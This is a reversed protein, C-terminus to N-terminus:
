RAVGPTVRAGLPDFRLRAAMGRRTGRNFAAEVAHAAAASDCIALVSPGSGSLAAGSAGANYALAILERTGELLPLRYPQHLRDDMAPRLVSADGSSVATLLLASRAAAHAADAHPVNAPLAARMDATQSPTEAIFLVPIWGLPPEIRRLVM